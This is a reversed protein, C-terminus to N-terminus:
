KHGHSITSNGKYKCYPDLPGQDLHSKVWAAIPLFDCKKILFDKLVSGYPFFWNQFFKLFYALYSWWRNSKPLCFVRIMFFNSKMSNNEIDNKPHPCFCSSLIKDFGNFGNSIIPFGFYNVHLNNNEVNSIFEKAETASYLHEICILNSDEHM